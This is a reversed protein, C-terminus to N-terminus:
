GIAALALVLLLYLVIIVAYAVASIIAWKKANASARFSEEYFGRYWYSDVKSAYVISPIGLPLCCFLTALIGWVLYNNPPPQNRYQQSYDPEQHFQQQFNYDM